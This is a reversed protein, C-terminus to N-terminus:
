SWHILWQGGNNSGQRSVIGAAKVGDIARQVTAKSVWYRKRDARRHQLSQSDHLESDLRGPCPEKGAPPLCRSKRRRKIMMQHQVQRKVKM